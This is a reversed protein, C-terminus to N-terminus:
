GDKHKVMAALIDREVERLASGEREPHWMIGVIPYRKHEFAEISEDPAEALPRLEDGASLIGYAHYSNVERGQVGLHGFSCDALIKLPHRTAM